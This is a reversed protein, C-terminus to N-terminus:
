NKKKKGRKEGEKRSSWAKRRGLGKGGTM